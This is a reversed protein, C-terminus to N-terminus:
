NQIYKIADSKTYIEIGQELGLLQATQFSISKYIDDINRNKSIPFTKTIDLIKLAELRDHINGRLANKFITRHCSRSYYTLITRLTRALKLRYDRNVLRDIILESTQEHLHYTEYISNNIEDITGHSCDSIINDHITSLHVDLKKDYFPQLENKYKEILIKCESINPISLLNVLKSNQGIM